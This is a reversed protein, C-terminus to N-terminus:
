NEFPWITQSIDAQVHHRDTTNDTWLKKGKWGSLVEQPRLRNGWESCHHQAPSHLKRQGSSHGHVHCTNYWLLLKLTQGQGGVGKINLWLGQLPHSCVQRSCPAWGLETLWAMDLLASLGWVHSYTIIPLWLGTLHNNSCCLRVLVLSRWFSWTFVCKLLENKYGLVLFEQLKRIICM